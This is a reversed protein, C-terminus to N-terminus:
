SLTLLNQLGPPVLSWPPFIGESQAYLFNQEQVLALLLLVDHAIDKEMLGCGMAM